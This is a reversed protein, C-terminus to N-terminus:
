NKNLQERVDEKLNFFDKEKFYKTCIGAATNAILLANNANKNKIYYYFYTAGFVDGCGVKNISEIQVAKCKILKVKGQETFYLNSGRDAKTVIIQKIGYKFLEEIIDTENSKLNLTKLEFENTQLIDISEAWKGFEPIPRFNRNMNEDLGRSLTHVDFYILGNFNKRLQQIQKISIDFGTIMNILIGDFRNLNSIDMEISETVNEYVEERETETKLRLNVIPICPVFKLYDTEVYDYIFSFLNYNTEDVTTCVFLKEGNELFSKLSVVTYFIGGPKIQLRNGDYIKDVVSHGIVLFNM